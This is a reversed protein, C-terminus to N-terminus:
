TVEILSLIQNRRFVEVRPRSTEPSVLVEGTRAVTASCSGGLTELAVSIDALSRGISPWYSRATVGLGRNDLSGVKARGLLELADCITSKGSANQGYIITFNKDAAFRLAFPKIAGRFGTITLQKLDSM